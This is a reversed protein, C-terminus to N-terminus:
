TLMIAEGTGVIAGLFRGRGIRGVRGGVSIHAYGDYLRAEMYMYFSDDCNSGNDAPGHRRTTLALALERIVTHAHLAM